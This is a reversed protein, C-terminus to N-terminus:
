NGSLSPLGAGGGGDGTGANAAGGSGGGGSDDNGLSFIVQGLLQELGPTSQTYLITGGPEVYDDAGGPSLSMFRGGLLSESAVIAMTDTPLRVSPDVTMTVEALYTEPDLRQSTVQGVRVGSIMVDAGPRLGDIRDFRAVVQYGSVSGVDTSSYAFFFFFGAVALVVAGMVTEIVNRSM